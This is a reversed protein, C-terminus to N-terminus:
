KTERDDVLVALEAELIHTLIDTSSIGITVGNITVTCPDPLFTLNKYSQRISYPHTPYVMTSHADNGASVM